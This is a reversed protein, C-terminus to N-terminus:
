PNLSTKMIAAHPGSKERELSFTDGEPGPYQKLCQDIRALDEKDLTVNFIKLNSQLRSADRAGIIIAGVGPQTLVWAAAVAAMAVNHKRGIDQLIKLVEQYAHWGGFAEIILRYKTLSRNAQSSAHPEPGVWSPNALFGGALSGYCLLHINQTKCFEAMGHCPRRDLLSYQVQNSILEVGAECIERLRIVDFNTAGLHRIKGSSQLQSLWGAAEVYGPVQYDWWHFQVLDLCDVGLRKLSRDVGAIIDKKKLDPLLDLNPVCKTHFCIKSSETKGFRERYAKLFQGLRQEVGTYIDACDFATLGARAMAFVGDLYDKDLVPPGHGESVQWGGNIIRPIQYQPRLFVQSPQIM